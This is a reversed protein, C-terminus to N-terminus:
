SVADGADCFGLEEYLALEATATADHVEAIHVDQPGVGAAEYAAAASRRAASPGQADGLGTAVVARSAPWGPRGSGGVKRNESSSTCGGLAQSSSSPRLTSRM